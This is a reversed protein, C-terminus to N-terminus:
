KETQTSCLSFTHPRLPGNRQIKTKFKDSKLGSKSFLPSFLSIEHCKSQVGRVKLVVVNVKQIKSLCDKNTDANICEELMEAYSEELIVVRKTQQEEAKLRQELEDDLFM